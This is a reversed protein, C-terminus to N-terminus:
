RYRPVIGAAGGSYVQPLKLVLVPSWSPLTLLVILSIASSLLLVHIHSISMLEPGDHRVHSKLHKAKLNNDPRSCWKSFNGCDCQRRRGTKSLSCALCCSFSNWKPVTALMQVTYGGGADSNGYRSTAFPFNPLCIRWKQERVYM